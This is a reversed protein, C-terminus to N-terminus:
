RKPLRSVFSAKLVFLTLYRGLLLHARAAHNKKCTNAHVENQLGQCAHPRCPLGWCRNLAREGREHLPAQLLRSGSFLRRCDDACAKLHQHLHSARAGHRVGALSMSSWKRNQETIRTKAQLHCIRSNLANPLRREDVHGIALRDFNGDSDPREILYTQPRRKSHVLRRECEKRAGNGEAPLWARRNCLM